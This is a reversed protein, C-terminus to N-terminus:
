QEKMRSNSQAELITQQKKLTTRTKLYLKQGLSVFGSKEKSLGSVESAAFTTLFIFKVALLSSKSCCGKEQFFNEVFVFYEFTLRTFFTNCSLITPKEKSKSTAGLVLRAPSPNLTVAKGSAM